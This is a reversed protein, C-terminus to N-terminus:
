DCRHICGYIVKPEHGKEELFDLLSQFREKFADMIEPINDPIEEIDNGSVKTSFDSRNYVLVNRLYEPSYFADEDIVCESNGDFYAYYINMWGTLLRVSEIDYTTLSGGCHPCYHCQATTKCVPCGFVAKKVSNNAQKPHGPPGTTM